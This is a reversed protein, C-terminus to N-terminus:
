GEHAPPKIIVLAAAILHNGRHHLADQSALAGSFLRQLKEPGFECRLHLRAHCSAYM